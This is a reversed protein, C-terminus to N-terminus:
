ISKNFVYTHNMRWLLFPTGILAMFVGTSLERPYVIGRMFSDTTAMFVAGIVISPWLAKRHMSGYLSRVFHPVMLGVFGIIGSAAVTVTILLSVCVVLFIETRSITAFFYDEANKRGFLMADLVPVRKRAVLFTALTCILIVGSSFWTGRSLDGFLWYLASSFNSKPEWQLIWGVIAGCLLNLLTGVLLISAGSSSVWRSILLLLVLSALSGVMAGASLGGYIVPQWGIWVFLLAGVSGGSSLGLIYPDCLPNQFLSQLLIGALSLAGGVCLAFVFRQFRLELVDAEVAKDPLLWTFFVGALLVLLILAFRKSFNM